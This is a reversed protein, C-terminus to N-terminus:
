DIRRVIGCCFHQGCKLAKADLMFHHVAIGFKSIRCNKAFVVVNRVEHEIGLSQLAALVKTAADDPSNIPQETM